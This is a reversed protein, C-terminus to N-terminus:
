KVYQLMFPVKQRWEFGCKYCKWDILIRSSGVTIKNKNLGQNKNIDWDRFLDPYKTKLLNSDM